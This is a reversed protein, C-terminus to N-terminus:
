EAQENIFITIFDRFVKAQSVRAKRCARIFSENMEKPIKISKTIIGKKARYRETAQTQPNAM